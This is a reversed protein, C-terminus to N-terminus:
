ARPPRARATIQALQCDGFVAREQDAAISDLRDAATALDFAENSRVAFDNVGAAPHNHGSKDVGVGVRDKGARAGIFELL